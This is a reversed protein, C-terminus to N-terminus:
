SEDSESAPSAAPADAPQTTPQAADPQTPQAQEKTLLAKVGEPLDFRAEPIAVNYELSEVKTVTNQVMRQSGTTRDHLLQKKAVTRASVVGETEAYDRFEKVTSLMDGAGTKRTIGRTLLLGSEKSYLLEEAYGEVPTAVVKYCAQGKFEELGVCETEGLLAGMRLAENFAAVRLSAARKAGYVLQCRGGGAKGWVIKGDSGAEVKRGSAFEFYQYYGDPAQQYIVLKMERAGSTATCRAVSNYLKEYAAKGGTVEVYRDFVENASPLEGDDSASDAAPSTAQPPTGKQPEVSAGPVGNSQCGTAFPLAQFMAFTFWAVCQASRTSRQSRHDAIMSFM